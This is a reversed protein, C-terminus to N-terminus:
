RSATQSSGRRTSASSPPTSTFAKVNALERSFDPDITQFRAKLVRYLRAEDVTPFREHARFLVVFIRPCQYGLVPCEHSSTICVRTATWECSLQETIFETLAEECGPIEGFLNTTFGNTTMTASGDMLYLAGDNVGFQFCSSIVQSNFVLGLNERLYNAV